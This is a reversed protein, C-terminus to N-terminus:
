CGEGSGGEWVARAWRLIKPWLRRHADCGVLAGVHRFAVGPAEEQHWCVTWPGSTAQLVPLVSQPPVLRSHPELVALVPTELRDPAARRGSVTLAGRYFQDDRCLRGAVDSFLRASVPLEDLAWHVVRLHAALAGPDATSALADLWRAALFETPDTALGLGSILSGSIRRGATQLANPVWPSLSVLSGLAGAGPVFHLPAEVLVLARVERPQLAAFIAAFTGGLSHGALLVKHTRFRDAM